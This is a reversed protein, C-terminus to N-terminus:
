PEAQHTSRAYVDPDLKEMWREPITTRAFGVHAYVNHADRTALCWRRFGQLEPHALICSMMWTALGQGRYDPLVFVDTVYAFTAYDTIVRAFGVLRQDRLLTFSLSHELSRKVVDLPVGRAWYSQHLFAHVAGIDVAGPDTTLLYDHLRWQEAM